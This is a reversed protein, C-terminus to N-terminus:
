FEFCYCNPMSSVLRFAEDNSACVKSSVCELLEKLQRKEERLTALLGEAVELKIVECELSHQAQKLAVQLVTNDARLQRSVKLLKAHHAQRPAAPSTNGQAVVCALDTRPRKAPTKFGGCYVGLDGSAPMEQLRFERERPPPPMTPPLYTAGPSLLQDLEEESVEVGRAMEMQTLTLQNADLEQM